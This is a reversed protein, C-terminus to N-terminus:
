DAYDPTTPLTSPLHSRLEEAAREPLRISFERHGAVITLQTSKGFFRKRIEVDPACRRPFLLPRHFLRFLIQTEIYIGDASSVVNLCRNYSSFPVIWGSVSRFIVGPPKSKAPYEGALQRWGCCSIFFAIVCFFCIVFLAMSAPSQFPDFQM